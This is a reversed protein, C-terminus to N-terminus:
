HYIDDRENPISYPDRAVPEKLVRLVGTLGRLDQFRGSPAANAPQGGLLQPMRTRLRIRAAPNATLIAPRAAAEGVGPGTSVV